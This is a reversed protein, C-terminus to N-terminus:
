ANYTLWRGRTPCRGWFLGGHSNLVKPEGMCQRTSITCPHALVKPAHRERHAVFRNCWGRKVWAESTVDSVQLAYDVGLADDGGGCCWVNLWCLKEPNAPHPVLVATFHETNCFDHVPGLYSDPTVNYEPWLRVATFGSEPPHEYFKLVVSSNRGRAKFWRGRTVELRAAMRIAHDYDTELSHLGVSPQSETVNGIRGRRVHRRRRHARSGPRRGFLVRTVFVPPTTLQSLLESRPTSVLSPEFFWPTIRAVKNHADHALIYIDHMCFISCRWCLLFQALVVILNSSYLRGLRRFASM